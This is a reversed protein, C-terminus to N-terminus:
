LPNDIQVDPQKARQNKPQDVTTEATLSWEFVIRYKRKCESLYVCLILRKKISAKVVAIMATKLSKDPCNIVQIMKETIKKKM